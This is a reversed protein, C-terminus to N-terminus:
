HKKQCATFLNQCLQGANGKGPKVCAGECCAICAQQPQGGGPGCLANCDQGTFDTCDIKPPDCQATVYAAWLMATVLTLKINCLRTFKSLLYHIKMTDVLKFRFSFDLIHHHYYDQEAASSSPSFNTTPHM